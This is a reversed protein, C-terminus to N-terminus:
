QGIIIGIHERVKMADYYRHAKIFENHLKWLFLLTAKKQSETM